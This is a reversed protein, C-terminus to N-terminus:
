VENGSDDQEDTILQYHSAYPQPEIPQNKYVSWVKTFAAGYYLILSSYFVFLMLLIISASTGYLSDINSYSLLWSLAAKGISFLVGTFLAGILVVRWPSRADPLFRFLIVFWSTVILFSRLYTLLMNFYFSLVPLYESIYSGILAQLREAFLGFAFLLGAILIVLMGKFRDAFTTKVKSRHVVKIKWLQNLSSEIVKFLTTATFLLFIFGIVLMYGNYTIKDFAKLTNMMQTVSKTGIYTSLTSFVQQQAKETSLFLRLGQVLMVIIPPLAFTTFFATAGAMRLPDNKQLENFADRLLKFFVPIAYKNKGEKM